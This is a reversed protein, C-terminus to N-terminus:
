MNVNYVSTYMKTQIQVVRKLTIYKTESANPPITRRFLLNNFAAQM